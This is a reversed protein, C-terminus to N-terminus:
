DRTGFDSESWAPAYGAALLLENSQRLPLNLASSLRLVIDRSPNTHGLELFSPHRQSCPAAMALPLQSLGRRKRWWVLRSPFASRAGVVVQSTTSVSSHAAITSTEDPA